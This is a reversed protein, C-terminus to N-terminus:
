SSRMFNLTKISFFKIDIVALLIKHFANRCRIRRIFIPMEGAGGGIILVDVSAHIDDVNSTLPDVISRKEPLEVVENPARDGKNVGIPIEGSTQARYDPRHSELLQAKEQYTLLPIDQM